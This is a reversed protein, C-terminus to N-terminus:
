LAPTQNMTSSSQDSSQDSLDAPKEYLFPVPAIEVRRNRARAESDTNAVLPRQDAFASAFVWHQPMGAEILARTVTLARQASLEWNDFFRSNGDHITLDDTFGSVMLLQERDNLYLQLPEVLSRILEQGEPELEASNLRFLLAGSIGVRGEELMIRGQALPIALAEELQSRRQEEAERRSVEERLSQSLELQLGLTWVLLLVFIGVVGAMLDGFMPWIASDQGTEDYDNM